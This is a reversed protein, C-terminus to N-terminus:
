SMNRAPETTIIRAARVTTPVRIESRSSATSSGRMRKWRHPRMRRPRRQRQEQDGCGRGARRRRERGARAIRHEARLGGPQPMRVSRQRPAARGHGAAARHEVEVAVPVLVQEHDGAAASGVTQVAVVPLAGEGVHRPGRPHRAHVAALSRRGGVDVTVAIRVQEDGAQPRGALRPGAEVQQVAVVARGSLVPHDAERLDAARGADRGGRGADLRAHATGEAVVVQVAVQVQEHGGPRALHGAVGQEAVVADNVAHRAEGVHGTRRAQGGPPHASERRDERVRVAVAVRLQQQGGVEAHAAVVDVAAVARERLPGRGGAGPQVLVAHAGGGAVEVAVTGQVPVDGGDVARM